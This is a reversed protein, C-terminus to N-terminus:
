GGPFSLREIEFSLLILASPRGYIGWAVEEDLLPVLLCLFQEVEDNSSDMPRFFPRWSM